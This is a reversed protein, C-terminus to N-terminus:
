GDSRGAETERRDGPPADAEDHVYKQWEIRGHPFEGLASVLDPVVFNYNTRQGYYVAKWRELHPDTSKVFLNRYRTNLSHHPVQTALVSLASDVGIYGASRKLIEVSQGMTTMNTMDVVIGNGPQAAFPTPTGTNLVVGALDNRVLYRVVENWEEDTFARDQRRPDNESHPVIVVYNTPLVFEGIDVGCLRNRPGVATFVSPTRQYKGQEIQIFRGGISWDEAEDWGEPEHELAYTVQDKSIFCFFDRFDDWVVVPTKLNPFEDRAAGLLEIIPGAARSALFVDTLNRRQEVPMYEVLTLFDGIGGTFVVKRPDKPTPKPLRVRNGELVNLAFFVPEWDGPERQIIVRVSKYWTGAAWRPDHPLPILGYAKKGLAGALHLVSTDVSVVMDLSNILKATDYFDDLPVRYLVEDFGDALKGCYVQKQLMFLHTDPRLGSLVKFHRLPCCRGANNSHEPNGEWAIGVKYVDRYEGLDAAEDIRLYGDAQVTFDGLLYPVSLSRVHYDHPPLAPDGRDHCGDVSDSMGKLFLRHLEPQCHLLVRAGLRKLAPFYRAFQIVDGFGQECYVLITRGTLDAKGDWAPSDKYTEKYYKAEQRNLRDLPEEVM